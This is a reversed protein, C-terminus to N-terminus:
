DTDTISAFVWAKELIIKHLGNICHLMRIETWHLKRRLLKTSLMRYRITYDSTHYNQLNKKGKIARLMRKDYTVGTLQKLKQCGLTIIKKVDEDIDGESSLVSGLYRLIEVSREINEQNAEAGSINCHMYDTKYVRMKIGNARRDGWCFNSGQSNSFPDEFAPLPLDAPFGSRPLVKSKRSRM